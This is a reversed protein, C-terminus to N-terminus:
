DVFTYFEVNKRLLFSASKTGMGYWDAGKFM